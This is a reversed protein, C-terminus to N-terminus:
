NLVHYTVTGLGLRVLWLMLTLVHQRPEETGWLHGFVSATRASGLTFGAIAVLFVVACGWTWFEQTLYVRTIMRGRGYSVFAVLAVPILLVTLAGFIATVVATVVRDGLSVVTADRM